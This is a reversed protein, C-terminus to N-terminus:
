GDIRRFSGDKAILFRQGRSDNLLTGPNGQLLRLRSDM